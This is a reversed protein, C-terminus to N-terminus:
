CCHLCTMVHNNTNHWVVVGHGDDTCAAPTFVSAQQQQEQANALNAACSQSSNGGMILFIPMTATSLFSLLVLAFCSMLLYSCKGGSLGRVGWHVLRMLDMKITFFM